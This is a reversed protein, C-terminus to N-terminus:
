VGAGHLARGGHQAGLGPAQVVVGQLPHRWFLVLPVVLPAAVAVTVAVTAM